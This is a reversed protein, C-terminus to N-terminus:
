YATMIIKHGTVDDYMHWGYGFNYTLSAECCPEGCFIAALLYKLFIKEIQALFYKLFIKEKRFFQFSIYKFFYRRALRFSVINKFTDERLIFFYKSFIYKFFIDKRNQSFINGFYIIKEIKEVMYRLIAFIKFPQPRIWFPQIVGLFTLKLKHPWSGSFFEKNKFIYCNVISKKLDKIILFLSSKLPM